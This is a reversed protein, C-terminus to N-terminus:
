PEPTDIKSILTISYGWFRKIETTKEVLDFKLIKPDFDCNKSLFVEIKELVTLSVTRRWDFESDVHEIVGM